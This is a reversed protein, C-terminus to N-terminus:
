GEVEDLRLPMKPHISHFGEGYVANGQLITVFASDDALRIVHRLAHVESRLVSVLIASHPNKPSMGHVQWTTTGHALEEYVAERIRDPYDSIILASCTDSPGELVYDAVIRNVFVAIVAYLAAEWGIVVGALVIVVTDAFLSATSLPLGLRQRLMLAATSTGGVTGGARYILGGGVGGVVGGVVANLFGDDTLGDAPLVGPLLEIALSYLVVSYLTFLVTKWGKLVRFAIVQIPINAVLVTLGIPTGALENLIVALGSVGAPAIDSPLLFIVVAAAAILSGATLLILRSLYYVPQHRVDDVLALM